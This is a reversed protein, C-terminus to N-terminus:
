YPSPLSYDWYTATRTNYQTRFSNTHGNGGYYRYELPLVRGVDTEGNKERSWRNLVDYSLELLDVGHDNVTPASSSYAFQHPATIVDRITGGGADVRNLITWAICALQVKDDIGRAENFITKAMMVADDDTYYTILPTPNIYRNLAAVVQESNEFSNFFSTTSMDINCKRIKLNRQTEYITGMTMSHESGNQAAELMLKMYDTSPNFSTVEVGDPVMWASLALIICLIVM